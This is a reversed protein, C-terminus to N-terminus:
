SKTKRATAPKRVGHVQMLDFEDAISKPTNSTMAPHPMPLGFRKCLSRLANSYDEGHVPIISFELRSSHIVSKETLERLTEIFSYDSLTEAHIRIKLSRGDSFKSLNENDCLTKYGHASEMLCHNDLTAKFNATEVSDADWLAAIDYLKAPLRTLLPDPKDKINVLTLGEFEAVSEKVQSCFVEYRRKTVAQSSLKYKNHLADLVAPELATEFPTFENAQLFVKYLSTLACAIYDGMLANDIESNTIVLLHDRETDMPVVCYSFNPEDPFVKIDPPCLPATCNWLDSVMTTLATHLELTDDSCYQPSNSSSTAVISLSNRNCLYATDANLAHRIHHCFRTAQDTTSDLGHASTNGCLTNLLNDYRDTLGQGQSLDAIKLDGPKTADGSKKNDYVTPRVSQQAM